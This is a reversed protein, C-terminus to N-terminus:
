FFAIFGIKRWILESQQCLFLHDVFLDHCQAAHIDFMDGLRLVIPKSANHHQTVKPTMEIAMFGRIELLKDIM